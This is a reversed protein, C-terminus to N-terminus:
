EIPFCIYHYCKLIILFAVGHLLVLMNCCKKAIILELVNIIIIEQLKKDQPMIMYATYNQFFNNFSSPLIDANYKYMFKELNLQYLDSVKLIKLLKFINKASSTRKSFTM